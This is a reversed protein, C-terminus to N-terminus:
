QAANELMKTAVALDEREGRFTIAWKSPVICWMVERGDHPDHAFVCAADEGAVKRKGNAISGYGDSAFGRSIADVWHDVDVIIQESSVTM